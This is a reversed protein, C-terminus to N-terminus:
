AVAAANTKLTVNKLVLLATTDANFENAVTATPKMARGTPPM